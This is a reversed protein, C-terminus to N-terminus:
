LEQQDAEDGAKKQEVPPVFSRVLNTVDKIVAKTDQNEWYELAGNPLSPDYKEAEIITKKQEDTLPYRDLISKNFGANKRITNQWSAYKVGFLDALKKNVDSEFGYPMIEVVASGPRLFLIYAMDESHTSVFVASGAVLDIQSKIDLQSLFAVQASGLETCADFIADTNILRCDTFRQSVIIRSAVFDEDKVEAAKLFFSRYLEVEEKNVPATKKTGKVYQLLHHGAAGAVVRSFLVNKVRRLPTPAKMSLSGQTIDTYQNHSGVEIITVKSPDTVLPKKKSIDGSKILMWYIGYLTDLLFKSLNNGQATMVVGTEELVVLDEPIAEYVVKVSAFKRPAIEV